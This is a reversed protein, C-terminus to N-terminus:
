DDIDSVADVVDKFSEVLEGIDTEDKKVYATTQTKNRKNRLHKQIITLVTRTLKYSAYGANIYIAIDKPEFSKQLPEEIRLDDSDIDYLDNVLERDSTNIVFRKMLLTM